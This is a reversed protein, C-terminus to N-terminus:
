WMMDDPVQFTAYPDDSNPNEYKAIFVFIEQSMEQIKAATDMGVIAYREGHEVIALAGTVLKDRQAKTVYIRKIATGHVFNYPQDARPENLQNQEIFQKLLAKRAKITQKLEKQRNLERDRQAKEAEAKAIVQAIADRNADPIRAQKRQEKKVQQAKTKDVLGLQLLQEQLSNKMNKKYEFIM